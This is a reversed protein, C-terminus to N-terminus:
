YLYTRIIHTDPALNLILIFLNQFALTYRLIEVRFIASKAVCKKIYLISLSYKLLDIQMYLANFINNVQSFTLPM